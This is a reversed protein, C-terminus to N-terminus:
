VGGQLANQIMQKISDVKKGTMRKQMMWSGMGGMNMKSLGLENVYGPLM